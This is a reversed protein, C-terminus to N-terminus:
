LEVNIYPLRTFDFGDYRISHRKHMQDEFADPGHRRIYSVESRYIPLLWLMHILYKGREIQGWPAAENLRQDDLYPYSYYLFEVGSGEIIPEGLPLIYGPQVEIQARFPFQAVKFLLEAVEDEYRQEAHLLYEYRVGFGNDFSQMSGPIPTYSAGMTAYVGFGPGGPYNLVSFHPSLGVQEDLPRAAGHPVGKWKLYNEFVFVSPDGDAHHADALIRFHQEYPIPNHTM